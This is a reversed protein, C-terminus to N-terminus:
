FNGGMAFEFKGSSEGPRPDLNFGYELRLPGVPSYWRIGGGASTRLDGFDFNQDKRWVNGADFFVLGTVGQSKLLPFRFELNYNMMKEGGVIDGSVPDRPAISFAEFGRVTNIGGIRYKQFAPLIGDESREVLYGWRGQALFVTEWPLPFFWATRPEYRNYAVTGGLPDGAYEFRFSNISGKSTDWLKDRSDRSILFNISSTVNTGVMEKIEPAANPGVDLIDADDYRYGLTL